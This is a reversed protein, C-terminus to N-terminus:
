SNDRFGSPTHGTHKKFLKKFHKLDSYGVQHAVDSIKAPTEMLISMAKEMRARTVFESFNQGTERKFRESLYNPHIHVQRAIENLSLSGDLHELIYRVAKHVYSTQPSSLTGYIDMLLILRDFWVDESFPRAQMDSEQEKGLGTLDGSRGLSEAVRELWRYGAIILSQLFTELSAPTLEPDKRIGALLSGAWRRVENQDGSKLCAILENEEQQTCFARIGKRDGIHEYAIYRRDGLIWYFDLATLAESCSKNLGEIHRVPLGASAYLKLGLRHELEGLRTGLEQGGPACPIVAMWQPAGGLLVNGFTQELESRIDADNISSGGSVTIQMVRLPMQLALAEDLAPYCRLLSAQEEATLGQKTLLVKELLQKGGGQSQKDLIVRRMRKAVGLIEDPRSTKLLYDSVGDRMAQQAYQFEDYDSLIVVQMDPYAAKTEKALELGSKGNMRIDTFLIDPKEEPMRQLAEEASGAPVLLEFGAQEWDIVTSIGQRIILEDDVILVKM